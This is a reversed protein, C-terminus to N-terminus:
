AAEGESFGLPSALHDSAVRLDERSPHVYVRKTFTANAHGAWAALAVDPVGNVALFTLCSHRADYLRVKRLELKRQLSYAAERLHCTMLPNASPNPRRPTFDQAPKAAVGAPTSM